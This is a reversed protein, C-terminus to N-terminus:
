AEEIAITELDNTTVDEVPDVSRGDTLEVQSAVKAEDIAAVMPQNDIRGKGPSAVEAEDIAAVMPQNDIQGTVPFTPQKTTQGGVLQELPAAARSSSCTAGSPDPSPAPPAPTPCRAESEDQQVGAEPVLDSTSDCSFVAALVVDGLEPVSDKSLQMHLDPLDFSLASLVRTGLESSPVRKLKERMCRPLSVVQRYIM